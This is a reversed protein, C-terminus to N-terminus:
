SGERETEDESGDGAGELRSGTARLFVEDLTPRHVAVSGVVIGARDLRRIAEPIVGSGDNVFLTLGHIEAQMERVGPVGELAARAAETRDLPLEVTVVDAGISRKLVEPADQAVIRGHDIIAVRDM